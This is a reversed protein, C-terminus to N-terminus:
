ETSEESIDEEPISKIVVGGAIGEEAWQDGPSTSIRLALHNDRTYFIVETVDLTFIEQSGQFGTIKDENLFLEVRPRAGAIELEIKREEWNEPLTFKCHYWLVGSESKDQFHDRALAPIRVLKGMGRHLDDWGCSPGPITSGESTDYWLNWQYFDLDLVNPEFKHSCSPLISILGVAIILAVSKGPENM